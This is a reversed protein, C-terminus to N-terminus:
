DFYLNTQEFVSSLASNEYNMPFRINLGYIEGDPMTIKGNEPEAGGEDERWVMSQSNVKDKLVARM